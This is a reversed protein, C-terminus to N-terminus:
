QCEPVGLSKCKEKLESKRSNSGGVVRPTTPNHVPEHMVSYTDYEVILWAFAFGVCLIFCIICFQYLKLMKSVKWMLLYM